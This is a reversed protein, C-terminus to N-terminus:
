EYGLCNRISEAREDGLNVECEWIVLVDWVLEALRTRHGNDRAPNREPSLQWFDLNSKWCYSTM